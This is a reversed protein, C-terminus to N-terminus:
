KFATYLRRPVKKPYQQKPDKTAQHSGLDYVENSEKKKNKRKYVICYFMFVYFVNFVIIYFFM